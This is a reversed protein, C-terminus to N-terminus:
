FRCIGFQELQLFVMLSQTLAFIKAKTPTRKETKVGTVLLRLRRLQHQAHSQLTPKV